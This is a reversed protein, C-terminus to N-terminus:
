ARDKDVQVASKVLRKVAAAPIQKVSTFKVSRVAKGTGSLIKQPDSLLKGYHFFLGIHAKAGMLACVMTNQSYCPMGWKMEARLTPGASLILAHLKDAVPKLDPHIKKFWPEVPKGFDARVLKAM